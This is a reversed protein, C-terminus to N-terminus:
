PCIEKLMEEPTMELVVGTRVEGPRVPLAFRLRGAASKKDHAMAALMAARDIGAPCDVPLGLNRLVASITGAMGPAAIGAREALRAEAVMGISVAGGHDLRYDMAKEIGHGVTHGLNLAARIGKELPDQCVVRVKVAVARSVLGAMNGSRVAPWGQACMAFLQPDNIIGHKVVEALGSQFVADPLSSLLAADALVMSPPHFAGVLNKGQPLDFGTKGGIAADVMALLTTPVAVWRIGRMYTAAAFGAMDSVVGGGLSVVTDGREMGAALFGAWLSQVSGLTKFSEGAGLTLQHVALGAAALSQRATEAYLPATNADAVLAVRGQWDHQRFVEGLEALCGSGVRVAYGDGMGSVFFAGLRIQAEDLAQEVPLHSVDLRCEFSRYHSERDSLLKKLRGSLGAANNQLLPREAAHRGLRAELTAHDAELCLVHGAREVMARSGSDLLSGGGLAVVAPTGGLVRDLVEREIRRFGAEGDRAFIDGVLCGAAQEIEQDLDVLPMMLREALRRGLSSKGAGPPGYLFIFSVGCRM